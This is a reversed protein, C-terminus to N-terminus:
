SLEYLFYLWGFRDIIKKADVVNKVADYVGLPNIPLTFPINTAIGKVITSPVSPTLLSLLEKIHKKEIECFLEKLDKIGTEKLQAQLMSLTKRFNVLFRHHRLDLIRDWPTDKLKPLRFRAVERFMEFSSRPDTPKTIEMLVRHEFDTPVLYCERRKSLESVLNIAEIVGCGARAVEYWLMRKDWAGHKEEFYQTLAARAANSIHTDKVWVKPNGFEYAPLYHQIPHIIRCLEASVDQKVGLEDFMRPFVESVIEERPSQLVLEDFWLLSLKLTEGFFSDENGKFWSFLGIVTM